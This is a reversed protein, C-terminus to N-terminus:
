KSKEETSPPASMSEWLKMLDSSPVPAVPTPAAGKPKRGPKSPTGAAAGQAKLLKRAKRRERREEAKQFLSELNDIEAVSGPDQFYPRMKEHVFKRAYRCNRLSITGISLLEHLLALAKTFPMNMKENYSNMASKIRKIRVSKYNRGKIYDNDPM